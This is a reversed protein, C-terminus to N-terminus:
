PPGTTGSTFIMMAPDDPTTDEVAFSTPHSAIIRDFDLAQGEAGDISIVFELDSLRGKIKGLKAVGSSNTIVAKVGATQLRYELAEVGFLLALPVAIAGLKYIAVHAIATEFSQPMLLAVRDGRGVGSAKLGNALANSRATLEGYSLRAPEGDVRYDFLAIRDPERAAWHDSVAAGINFRAPLDWRFGGYFSSYSEHRKLM